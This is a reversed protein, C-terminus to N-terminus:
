SDKNSQQFLSGSGKCHLEIENLSVVEKSSSVGMEKMKKLSPIVRSQISSVMDNYSRVSSNISKGLKELHEFMTILRDYIEKSIKTLELASKTMQEQQWGYAISRLLAVLTTPTALIVKNKIGEEILSLDQELAASFFSEGPLYMVVMEPSQPFQDWYAKSSLAKIHARIQGVYQELAIKKERENEVTLANLYSDVPAKADIVIMRGNPLRVIMDPQLRGRETDISEQEVFDIHATMGSLSVVNRLGIEGWKGSVKPRRLANVLSTTESRLREQDQALLTLQRTLAGFSQNRHEEFEKIQQEYRKLLEQLPKVTAEIAEKHASFRGGTEALMKGITESALRMFEENSSKLANASLANFTHTLELKMTEILEKQTELSKLTEELRKEKEQLTVTLEIKQAREVELSDRLENFQRSLSELNSKSEQLLMRTGEAKAEADKLQSMFASRTEELERERKIQEDRIAIEIKSKYIFTVILWTGIAGLLLGVILSIAMEM